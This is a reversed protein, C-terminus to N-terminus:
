PCPAPMRQGRHNAVGRPGHPPPAAALLRGALRALRPRASCFCPPPSSGALGSWGTSRCSGTIGAIGTIGAMGTIGATGTIGAMRPMGARGMFGATRAMGLCAVGARRASRCDVVGRSGRSRWSGVM